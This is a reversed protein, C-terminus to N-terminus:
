GPRADRAMDIGAWCDPTWIEENGAAKLYLFLQMRYATMWKVSIELLARGLPLEEGLPTKAVQEDFAAPTLEAFFDRLAQAERDLAAPVDEASLEACESQWQKYGDWNGDAMARAGGIGCFCLYRLVELTTRQGETPRYDYGGAPVKTALHRTIEIERLLTDLIDDQTLM